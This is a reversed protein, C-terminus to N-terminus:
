DWGLALLRAAQELLEEDDETFAAPDDSDVDVEGLVQNGRMIPVVLESKTELSCALYRPDANVDPINITRKTRAALGCIGQGIPIRTHETPRGIYPGLVLTDGELVYIGLWTYHQRAQKLIGVARELVVSRSAGTALIDALLRLVPRQAPRAQSIIDEVATM